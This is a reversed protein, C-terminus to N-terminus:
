NMPKWPKSGLRAMAQRTRREKAKDRYYSGATHIVGAFAIAILLTPFIPLMLQAHAPAPQRAIRGKFSENCYAGPITM